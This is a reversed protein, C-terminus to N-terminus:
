SLCVKCDIEGTKDEVLRGPVRALTLGCVTTTESRLGHTKGPRLQGTMPHRYPSAKFRMSGGGALSQSAERPRRINFNQASDYRKVEGREGGFCRPRKREGTAENRLERKEQGSGDTSVKSASLGSPEERVPSSLVFSEILGHDVLHDLTTQSVPFDQPRGWGTSKAPKPRRATTTPQFTSM